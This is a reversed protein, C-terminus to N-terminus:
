GKTKWKKVANLVETLNLEYPSPYIIHYNSLKSRPETTELAVVFCGAARGADIGAQSDEFVICNEPEFGLKHAAAIFVDPAPKGHAVQEASIYDGFYKGLITTKLFMELNAIPTSSAIIRPINAAAVQKLFNEMGPILSINGEACNRFLNEKRDAIKQRHDDSLQPVIDKLILENRKGFGKIFDEQEMKLEPCEQMLLQWSQWHLASSDILVGDNDFLFAVPKM